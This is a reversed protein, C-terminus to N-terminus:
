LPVPAQPGAGTCAGAGRPAAATDHLSRHQRQTPAQANLHQWQATGTGITTAAGTSAASTHKLIIAQTSPADLGQLRERGAISYHTGPTLMSAPVRFSDFFALPERAVIRESGRMSIVDSIVCRGQSLLFSPAQSLRLYTSSRTTTVRCHGRSNVV